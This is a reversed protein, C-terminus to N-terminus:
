ETETNLPAGTLRELEALARGRDAEARAAELEFELLGRQADLLDLFTGAGTRYATDSAEVSEEGKPVLSRAYLELRRDADRFRYLCGEV